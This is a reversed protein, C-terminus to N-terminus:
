NWGGKKLKKANIACIHQVNQVSCGLIDAIKYMSYGKLRYIFVEYQRPSLLLKSEKLMKTFDINFEIQKYDFNDIDEISMEVEQKCDVRDITTIDRCKQTNYKYIKKMKSDCITYIFSSLKAIKPDYKDLRLCVELLLEQITDDDKINHKKAYSYILRINDELLQASEKTM